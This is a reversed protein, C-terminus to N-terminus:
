EEPQIEGPPQTMMQQLGGLIQEQEAPPIGSYKILSPMMVQVPIGLRVLEILQNFIAFMYTKQAPAEDIICDFVSSERISDFDEPIEIDCVKDFKETSWNQLMMDVTVRGLVRLAQSFNEFGTQMSVLAAQRRAEVTVGPASPGSGGDINGLFDPNPGSERINGRAIADIQLIAQLAGFEGRIPEPKAGRYRIIKAPGSAAKYEEEDVISNEEVYHGSLPQQLAVSIIQSHLKNVEDNHAVLGRVVGQFKNEWGEAEPVYTFFFPIIPFYKLSDPADDDSVVLKGEIIVARRIIPVTKTTILRASSNAELEMRRESESYDVVVYDAMGEVYYAAMERYSRYWYEDVMLPSEERLEDPRTDALIADDRSSVMSAIEDAYDKFEAVLVGKDIFTRYILYSSDSLDPETTGPDIFVSRPNIAKYKINGDVIDDTYDIYASIFGLGCITASQVAQLVRYRGGMQVMNWKLAQSLVEAHASDAGEVPFAKIDGLNQAFYGVVADVPKKCLNTEIPPRGSDLLEQREEDTFHDGAYYDFAKIIKDFSEAHAKQAESRAENYARLVEELTDEAPNKM